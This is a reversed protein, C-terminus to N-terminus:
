FAPRGNLRAIHDIRRHAGLRQGARRIRPAIIEAKIIKEFLHAPHPRDDPGDLLAIASRGICPLPNPGSKIAISAKHGFANHANDPPLIPSHSCGQNGALAAIDIIVAIIDQATRADIM